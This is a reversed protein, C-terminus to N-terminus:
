LKSRRLQEFGLSSGVSLALLAVVVTAQIPQGYYSSLAYYVIFSPVFIYTSHKVLDTILKYIKESVIQWRRFKTLANQIIMGGLICVLFSAIIGYRLGTGYADSLATIEAPPQISNGLASIAGFLLAFGFFVAWYSSFTIYEKKAFTALIQFGDQNKPVYVDLQVKRVNILGDNKLDAIAVEVKSIDAKVKESIASLTYEEVQTTKNPLLKLYDIIAKKIEERTQLM